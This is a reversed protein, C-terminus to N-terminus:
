PQRERPHTVELVGDSRVARRDLLLRSNGGRMEAEADCQHLEVAQILRGGLKALRDREVRDKRPRMVTEALREVTRSREVLRNRLEARRDFLLGM